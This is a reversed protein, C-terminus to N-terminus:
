FIHVKATNLPLKGVLTYPISNKKLEDLFANVYTDNSFSQSICIGFVGNIVNIEAVLSKNNLSTQTYVNDIYPALGYWSKQGVYSVSYTTLKTIQRINNAYVQRKEEPSSLSRLYDCFKSQSGISYLINEPQSQLMIMGRGLTGLKLVDYDRTNPTYKLYLLSILSAFHDNLNLASRTNTAVGCVVPKDIAPFINTIAKYILASITANPTGDNSKSFEMLDKESINIYYASGVDDLAPDNDSLSFAEESKYVSFPKEPFSDVKSVPNCSEDPSIADGAKKIGYPDIIDGYKDTLYYYITSQIFTLAGTADIMGHYFDFFITNGKFSVSFFHNNVEDTGLHVKDESNVVVVPADNYVFDFDSGHRELKIMMYPFRVSATAIASKLSNYDVSEKMIVVIRFCNHFDDNSSYLFSNTCHENDLFM